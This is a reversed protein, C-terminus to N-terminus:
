SLRLKGMQLIPVVAGRLPSKPTNSPRKWHLPVQPPTKDIRPDSFAKSLTVRAM